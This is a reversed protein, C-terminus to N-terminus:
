QKTMDLLEVIMSAKFQQFPSSILAVLERGCLIAYRVRFITQRTCHVNQTREKSLGFYFLTQPDQSSELVPSCCGYFTGVAKRKHLTNLFSKSKKRQNNEYKDKDKKNAKALKYFDVTLKTM